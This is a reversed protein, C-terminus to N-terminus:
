TVTNLKTENSLSIKEAESSSFPKKINKNQEM